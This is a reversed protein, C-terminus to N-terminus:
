RALIRDLLAALADDHPRGRGTVWVYLDMDSAELFREFLDLEAVDMAPAHQAFWPELLVDLERMGRRCRWRLRKRQTDCDSAQVGLHM